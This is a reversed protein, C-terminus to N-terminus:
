QRTEEDTKPRSTNRSHIKRKRKGQSMRFINMRGGEEHSKRKSKSKSKSKIRMMARANSVEKDQEEVRPRHLFKLHERPDQDDSSPVRFEPVQALSDLQLAERTTVAPLSRARRPSRGCRPPDSSRLGPQSGHRSRQTSACLRHGWSMESFMNVHQPLHHLPACIVTACKTSTALM